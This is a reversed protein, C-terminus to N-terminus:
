HGIKRCVFQVTTIYEDVGYSESHATPDIAQCLDAYDSSSLPNPIGPVEVVEVDEDTALPADWDIGYLRSDIEKIIYIYIYIYM